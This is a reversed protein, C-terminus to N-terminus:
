KETTKDLHDDREVFDTCTEARKIYSRFKELDDDYNDFDWHWLSCHISLDDGPTWESYGHTANDIRIHECSWCIKKDM